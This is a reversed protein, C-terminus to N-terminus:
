EQLRRQLIRKLDKFLVPRVFPQAQTGPHLVKKSFVEQGNVEFKLAKKTKPLILHPRTGFEVYEGYADMSIILSSGTSKVNISDRLGGTKKPTNRKLEIELDHAVKPLIESIEM